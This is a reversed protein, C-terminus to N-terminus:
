AALSPLNEIRRSARNVPPSFFKKRMGKRILNRENKLPPNNFFKLQLSFPEDLLDHIIFPIDMVRLTSYPYEEVLDVMGVECPNRYIYRYVTSLYKFDKVLSWRYRSGFIQNIRM